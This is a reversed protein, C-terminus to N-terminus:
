FLLRLEKSKTFKFSRKKSRREHDCSITPMPPEPTLQISETRAPPSPSLSPPPPPLSPPPPPPPLSPPLPPLLPPVATRADPAVEAKKAADTSASLGGLAGVILRALQWKERTHLHMWHRTLHKQQLRNMDLVYIHHRAALEEIYANVLATHQNIHHTSPLDHRNPLTACNASTIRKELNDYINRQERAALDNTGPILVSCRTGRTVTQPQSSTIQLLRAGPKCVRM